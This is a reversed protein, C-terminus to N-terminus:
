VKLLNQLENLFQDAEEQTNYYHPSIRLIENKDLKELLLRGNLVSGPSTNIGKTKLKQMIDFPNHSKLAVTIIGSQARGVDLVEVGDIERLRSRLSLAYQNIHERISNIGINLISNLAESLGMKLSLNSEFQEFRRADERSKYNNKDEWQASFLDTSLPDLQNLIRSNVYLFGTGRPGRIFKRGTTSLIDCGIKQVDVPYQGVSQCADLLFLIEHARAIKGIEEVPNILGNISPMHTIAILKTKSTILGKVSEPDTEGWSNDEAVKIEVNFWKKLRLFSIYNSSYEANCTIIEDGDKWNISFFARNWSTTASDTFAIENPQANILKAANIYLGELEESKDAAAEYGGQMFEYDMYDRIAQIVNQSMLATGANNFHIVSGSGPTDNRLSVINLMM